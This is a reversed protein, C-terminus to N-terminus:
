YSQFYRSSNGGFHDIVGDNPDTIDHSPTNRKNLVHRWRFNQIEGLMDSHLLRYENGLNTPNYFVFRRNSYQKIRDYQWIEYPHESPSSVEEIISSPMGYELYVRGRDTEFGVQYTTAFLREVLQVQAKYKAWEEYSNTPSIDKWFAQLYRFNKERDKEKLLRIINRVEAPRSIPILSGVYYAVSDETVSERFAPDLIVSEYALDNVQETNNRDFDYITQLLVEKERNLINLEVTYAGTPLMSIDIVKAVPQLPSTRYRFYRTYESLDQKGAKDVLKQEVIYISDKLYKDTNYVEMYYLLNQMETPYYSGTMPVVDYGAKSYISLEEANLRISEAQVITSTSLGALNKIEVPKKVSLPELTSNVDSIILEYDYKGPELVYKQIDYFDEYISDIIPPCALLYRDASFISDNRSFIQTIEIEGIMKGEHEIYNVTHGTFSLQVEIYSGHEETYFQNEKLFVKLQKDQSFVVSSIALMGIFVFWRGMM